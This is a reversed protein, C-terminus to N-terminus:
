VAHDIRRQGSNTAQGDPGYLDLSSKGAQLAQLAKATVNLRLQILEGNLRSLERAEAALRLITTWTEAVTKEAPYKTCWAEIGKRGTNFGLVALLDNRQKDLNVLSNALNSKQDALTPLEDTEGASLATQEVNLLDVFQQVTRAEEAIIQLLPKTEGSSM